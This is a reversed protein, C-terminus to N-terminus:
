AMEGLRVEGRVDGEPGNKKKSLLRRLPGAFFHDDESMFGARRDGLM